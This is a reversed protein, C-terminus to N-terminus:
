RVIFKAAIPKGQPDIARVCYMSAALEGTEMSGTLGQIREMAIFRGTADYVAVNWKEPYPFTLSLRNNEQEHWAILAQREKDYVEEVGVPDSCNAVADGGIWQAVSKYFPQGDVYWIGGVVYLSDQWITMDTLTNIDSFQGSFQGPLGCWQTGTWKAIGDCLVGGCNNFLECVYLEDHWWELDLAAASNPLTYELGGGLNNWTTGDFAAVLNGPAGGSEHFAGAVYLIGNRILIEKIPSLTNWGPVYEWMNGDHRIFSVFDPGLPDRFLGTVYTYGQYDFVIGVYNNNYDQVENFPAWIHFASGDYRFICSQPYGCITSTFGTAYLNAQPEKPM